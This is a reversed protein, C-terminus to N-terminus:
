SVEQEMWRTVYSPTNEIRIENSEAKCLFEMAARDVFTVNKLDLARESRKCGNQSLAKEVEPIYEGTFHGHLSVRCQTNEAEKTIKLMHKDVKASVVAM